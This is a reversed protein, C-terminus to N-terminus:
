EVRATCDISRGGAGIAAQVKSDRQSKQLRQFGQVNLAKSGVTAQQRAGKQITKFPAFRNFPKFMKFPGIGM